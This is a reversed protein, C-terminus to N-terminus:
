VLRNNKTLVVQIDSIVNNYHIFAFNRAEESRPIWMNNVNYGYNFDFDCEINYHSLKNEDRWSKNFYMFSAECIFRTHTPDQVARMSSYYPTLITLKGGPKLIRYCEDMFKIFSDSPKSPDIDSVMKKFDAFSKAKKVMEKIMTLTNDHPLHEVYHSCFIEDVTEDNFTWPYVELDMVLDVSDTKRYDVGIHGEQKNDGCALDIKVRAPTNSAIPTEASYGKSEM